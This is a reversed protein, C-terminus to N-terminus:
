LIFEFSVVIIIINSTLHVRVMCHHMAHNQLIDMSEDQFTKKAQDEWEELFELKAHNYGGKLFKPKAVRWGKMIELSREHSLYPYKISGCM